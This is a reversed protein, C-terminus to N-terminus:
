KKFASLYQVNKRNEMLQCNLFSNIVTVGKFRLFPKWPPDPIDQENLIVKKSYLSSGSM